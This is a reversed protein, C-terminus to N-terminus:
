FNTYLARGLQCIESELNRDCNEKILRCMGAGAGLLDRYIDADLPGYRPLYIQKVDSSFNVSFLIVSCSEHAMADTCGKEIIKSKPIFYVQFKSYSFILGICIIAPLSAFLIIVTTKRFFSM